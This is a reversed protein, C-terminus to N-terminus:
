MAQKNDTAQQQNDSAPSKPKGKRSLADRNADIFSRIENGYELVRQWQDSYLTVPFRGMGYISVGGKPSVKLRLPQPEIMASLHQAAAEPSMTGEAVASLIENKSMTLASM